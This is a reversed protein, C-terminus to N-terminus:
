AIQEKEEFLSLQEADNPDTKTQLINKKSISKANTVANNAYGAVNGDLGAFFANLSESLDALAQFIQGVEKNLLDAAKGLMEAIKKRGIEISGLDEFKADNGLGLVQTQSIHFKFTRLYGLSNLLCMRKQEIGMM